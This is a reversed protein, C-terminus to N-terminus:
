TKRRYWHTQGIIIVVLGSIGTLAKRITRPHVWFRDAMMQVTMPKKHTNFYHEIKDRLTLAEGETSRGSDNASM